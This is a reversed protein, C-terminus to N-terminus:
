AKEFYAGEFIGRLLSGIKAENEKRYNEQPLVM